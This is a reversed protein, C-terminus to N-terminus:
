KIRTQPCPLIQGGTVSAGGRRRCNIAAETRGERAGRHAHDPGLEPWGDDMYAGSVKEVVWRIGDDDVGMDDGIELM